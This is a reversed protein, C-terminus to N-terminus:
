SYAMHYVAKKAEGSHTTLLFSIPIVIRVLHRLTCTHRFHVSKVRRMTYYELQSFFFFFLRICFLHCFPLAFEQVSAAFILLDSTQAIKIRTYYTHIPQITCLKGVLYLCYM